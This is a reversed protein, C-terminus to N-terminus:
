LLKKIRDVNENLGTFTRVDLKANNPLITKAINTAWSSLFGGTPNEETETDVNTDNTDSKETYEDAYNKEIWKILEIIKKRNGTIDVAMGVVPTGPFNKYHLSNKVHSSGVKGDSDKKAYPNESTLLGMMEAKEIIEIATKRKNFGIHLHNDHNSWEIGKKRKGDDYGYGIEGGEKTAPNYVLEDVGEIDNESILSSKNSLINEYLSLINKIKKDM